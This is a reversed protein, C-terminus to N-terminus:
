KFILNSYFDIDCFNTVGLVEAVGAGFQYKIINYDNFIIKYFNRLPGYRTKRM